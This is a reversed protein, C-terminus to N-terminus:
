EGRKPPQDSRIAQAVLDIIWSLADTAHKPELGWVAVLREYTPPNWFIDLLAAATEQEQSTWTPTARVVANLLADRRHQDMSAFSPDSVPTPAVAFSALYAFMRRTVNAFDNLALDQLAIGSEELMRQLVADRLHRETAFHRQVTRESVGARESVAPATLNTWDWAPYSHVLKAGAAVIRERTAAAQQQRLPSNYRRKSVSEEASMNNSADSKDKKM